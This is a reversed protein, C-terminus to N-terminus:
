LPTEAQADNAEQQLLIRLLMVITAGNMMAGSNLEIAAGIESRGIRQQIEIRTIGTFTYDAPILKNM